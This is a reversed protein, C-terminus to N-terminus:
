AFGLFYRHGLADKASLRGRQTTENRKCVLRKALDWGAGGKRDLMTFNANRARPQGSARWQALDWDAKELEQLFMGYQSKGRIEPIAMQCFLLGASYSDFLEPRGYIWLFPAVAAALVPNPPAPTKSPLVLQEPACYRPDLMGYEPNYNIGTSLDTAAGFDIVKVKGEVTVLLNDPKVDRHVIGISHLAALAKLIQQMIKRVIAADVAEQADPARKEEPVPRRLMIEELASPWPGLGGAIADQLTSDSEFSWVLWETGKTFGADTKEARFTGQYEACYGRLALSRRIKSNMYVEVIGAEAAGRAITGKSLFDKRASGTSDSNIRKIVVRNKKEEDTLQAKTVRKGNKMRIAEYTVGYNGGGLRDRLTFQDVAFKPESIKELFSGITLDGINWLPAPRSLVLYWLAAAHLGMDPTPTLALANALDQIAINALPRLAEPVQSAYQSLASILESSTEPDSVAAAAAAVADPDVARCPAPRSARRPARARGAM